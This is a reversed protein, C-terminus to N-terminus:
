QHPYQNAASNRIAEPATGNDVEALFLFYWLPMNSISAFKELTSIRYDRELNKQSYYLESIPIGFQKGLKRYSSRNLNMRIIALQTKSFQM